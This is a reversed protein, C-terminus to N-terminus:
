GATRCGFYFFCCHVCLVVFVCLIVVVICVALWCCNCVLCILVLLLVCSAFSFKVFRVFPLIVWALCYQACNITIPKKELWWNVWAKVGTRWKEDSVVVIFRKWRSPCLRLHSSLILTPRWSILHPRPSFWRARNISIHHTRTSAFIFKRTRFFAPFKQSASFSNAESSPSQDM